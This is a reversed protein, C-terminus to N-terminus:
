LYWGMVESVFKNVHKQGIGIHASIDAKDFIGESYGKLLVDCLSSSTQDVAERSMNRPIGNGGM